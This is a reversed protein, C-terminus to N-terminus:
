AEDSVDPLPINESNVLYERLHIREEAKDQLELYGPIFSRIFELEDSPGSLSEIKEKTGIITKNLNYISDQDIASYDKLSNYDENEMRRREFSINNPGTIISNISSSGFGLDANNTNNPAPTDEQINTNSPGAATEEINTNSPDVLDDSNDSKCTIM